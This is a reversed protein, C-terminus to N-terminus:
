LLRHEHILGANEASWYWNNQSNVEVRLLFWAERSFCVLHPGFAGYHLSRLFWSCFHIRAVPDHEKLVYVVSTKCPRLQKLKVDRRASTKLVSREQVSFFNSRRKGGSMNSIDGGPAVCGM